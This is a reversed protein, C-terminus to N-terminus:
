SIKKCIGSSQEWSFCPVASFHEHKQIESCKRPYKPKNKPYKPGFVPYKSTKQPYESFSRSKKMSGFSLKTFFWTIQNIKGFFIMDDSKHGRVRMTLPDAPMPCVKHSTKQTSPHMKPWYLCFFDSRDSRIRHFSFGVAGSQAATHCISSCKKGTPAATQSWSAERFM